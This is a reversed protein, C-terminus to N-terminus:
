KIVEQVEAKIYELADYVPSKKIEIVKELIAQSLTLPSAKDDVGEAVTNILKTLNGKANKVMEWAKSSIYIQQSLNHEYEARITNVLETQLEKSTKVNQALRVIISDPSIRELFLIIREYAQLRVPIIVKSNASLLEYKRQKEQNEFFRKIIYYATLFVILSPVIIQVLELIIEM